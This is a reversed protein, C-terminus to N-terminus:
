AGTLISIMLGPTEDNALPGMSLRECTKMAGSIFANVMLSDLNPM